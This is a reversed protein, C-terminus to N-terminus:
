LVTLRCIGDNCGGGNADRGLSVQMKVIRDYNDPDRNYKQSPIPLQNTGMEGSAVGVQESEVM